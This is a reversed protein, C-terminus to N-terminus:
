ARPRRRPGVRPPASSARTLEYGCEAAAVALVRQLAPDSLARHLVPDDPLASAAREFLAVAPANGWMSSCYLIGHLTPYADYFARAWRRAKPRAGSHIATSAGLRTPFRGTLDLLELTTALEFSVLAPSGDTPDILRRAQFVEALCTPVAEPGVAAYMVGRAQVVPHGHEDPLHPDFRSATPGFHRFGNWRGPYEGGAFYIRTLVAGPELTHVVPRIRRLTEADPADPFKSM